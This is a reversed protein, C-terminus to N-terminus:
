EVGLALVADNRRRTKVLVVGCGSQLAELVEPANRVLRRDWTHLWEGGLGGSVLGMLAGLPLAWDEIFELLLMLTGGIVIGLAIGVASGMNTSVVTAVHDDIQTIGIPPRHGSMGFRVSKSKIGTAKLRRIANLAADYDDYTAVLLHSDHPLAHSIQM